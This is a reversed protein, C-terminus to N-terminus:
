SRVRKRLYIRGGIVRKVRDTVPQASIYPSEVPGFYEIVRAVKRGKADVLISGPQIPGRSRVILRGSKALHLAEGVEELQGVGNKTDM